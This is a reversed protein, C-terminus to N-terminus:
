RRRWEDLSESGDVPAREVNFPNAPDRTPEVLRLTAATPRGHRYCFGSLPDACLCPAVEDAGSAHADAADIAAGEDAVPDGRWGCACRPQYVGACIPDPHTSPALPRHDTTM